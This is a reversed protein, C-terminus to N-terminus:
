LVERIHSGLAVFDNLFSPFTKSVCSVPSVKTEGEAGLAAVALSMAMRHDSYSHVHAGKLRSKKVKLGDDTETIEAGMKKLEKVICHIRNCEKQKAVAGNTILTEGDAFCGVVALITIADIFNNIDVTIGQLPKGKKVHLTKQREDIEILAGMKQFVDILEKDGQSDSMDVNKITMESNTILAAAIPFAASSLDGPVHYTFGKYRANGFLKYHTYHHNEYPIGLREFWDLTLAVWPKEGPNLVTIEVPGVAFASAILLASVPQSDEGALTVKGAQLPGQIIIPAYGDNRM